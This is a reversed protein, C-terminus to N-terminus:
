CDNSRLEVFRVDLSVGLPVLTPRKGGCLLSAKEGEGNGWRTNSEETRELVSRDRSVRASGVVGTLRVDRNAAFSFLDSAIVDRGVPLSLPLHATCSQAFRPPRSARVRVCVCVCEQVVGRWGACWSRASARRRYSIPTVRVVVRSGGQCLPSSDPVRDGSREFSGGRSGGPGWGSTSLRTHRSSRPPCGFRTAPRGDGGIRLSGKEGRGSFRSECPLGLVGRM